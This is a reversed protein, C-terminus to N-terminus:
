IWDDNFILVPEDEEIEYDKEILKNLLQTSFDFFSNALVVNDQEYDMGSILQFVQGYVGNKGPNLDIILYCTSESAIPLWNKDWIKPQIKNETIWEIKEENEWLKNQMKVLDIIENVPIFSYYSFPQIEFNSHSQGNFVKLYQIFETPIDNEFLSKLLNIESDNAPQNFSQGSKVDVIRIETQIKNWIQNM